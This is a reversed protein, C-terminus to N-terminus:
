DEGIEWKETAQEDGEGSNAMLRGDGLLEAQLGRRVVTSGDINALRVLDSHVQSNRLGRRRGVWPAGAEGRNQFADTRQWGVAMAGLGGIGKTWDVEAEQAVNVRRGCGFDHSERGSNM